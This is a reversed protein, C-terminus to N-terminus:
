IWIQIWKPHVSIVLYGRGFKSFISFFPWFYVWITLVQGDRPFFLGCWFVEFFRSFVFIPNLNLNPDMKVCRIDGSIVLWINLFNLFFALLLGINHPGTSGMFFIFGMLNSWFIPLILIDVKFKFESRNQCM